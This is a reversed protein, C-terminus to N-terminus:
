LGEYGGNWQDDTDWNRFGAGVDSKEGCTGSTPTDEKGRVFWYHNQSIERQEQLHLLLPRVTLPRGM